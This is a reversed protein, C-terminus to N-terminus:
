LHLDNELVKEYGYKQCTSLLREREDIGTPFKAGSQKNLWRYFPTYEIKAEKLLPCLKIVDKRVKYWERFDKEEM